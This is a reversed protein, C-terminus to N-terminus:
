FFCSIGFSYFTFISLIYTTLFSDCSLHFPSSLGEIFFKVTNDLIHDHVHIFGIIWIILVSSYPKNNHDNKDEEVYCVIRLRSFFDM